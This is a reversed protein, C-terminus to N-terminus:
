IYITVFWFVTANDTYVHHIHTHQVSSLFPPTSRLLVTMALSGSPLGHVDFGFDLFTGCTEVNRRTKYICIYKQIYKYIGFVTDVHTNVRSRGAILRAEGTRSSSVILPQFMKYCCTTRQSGTGKMSMRYKSM